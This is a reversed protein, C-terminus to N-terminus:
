RRTKDKAQESQQYGVRRKYAADAEFRHPAQRITYALALIWILLPVGVLLVKAGSPWSETAPFVNTVGLFLAALGVAGVLASRLSMRVKFREFDDPRRIGERLTNVLVYGILLAFLTCIIGQFIQGTLWGIVAIASFFLLAGILLLVDFTNAKSRRM